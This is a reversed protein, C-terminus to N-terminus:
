RASVTSASREAPAPLWAHRAALFLGTFLLNAAALNRLFVWTPAFGAPGTWQAQVFGTLTKPYLPDSLFSVCNTAFYFALASGLSAGLLTATSPRRRSLFGIGAAVGLGIAIGLHHWGFIPWGVIASVLPDSLLWAGLPLLWAKAGRFFFVSCLFLAPLPSFNPLQDPFMAGLCRFAVLLGLLVFGTIWSSRM